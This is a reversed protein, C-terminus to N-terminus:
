IMAFISSTRLEWSETVRGIETEKQAEGRLGRTFLRQMAARKVQLGAAIAEECILLSNHITWVVSTIKAREEPAFEPIQFESIRHWSTRPHQSGTTGSIAHQIFDNCHVVAILFRPDIGEKARLVLLETTCVVTKKPSSRRTSTLAYNGMCFMAKRLPSSQVKFMQPLEAALVLLGVPDLM